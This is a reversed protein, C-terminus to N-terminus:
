SGPLVVSGKCLRQTCSKQRITTYNISNNMRHDVRMMNYMHAGGVFVFCFDKTFLILQAENQFFFLMIQCLQWMMRLCISKNEAVYPAGLLM